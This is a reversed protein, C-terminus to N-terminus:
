QSANAVPVMGPLSITTAYQLRNDLPSCVFPCFYVLKPFSGLRVVKTVTYGSRSWPEPTLAFLFVM